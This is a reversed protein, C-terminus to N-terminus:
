LNVNRIHETPNVDGMNNSSFFYGYWRINCFNTWDPPCVAKKSYTNTFHNSILKINTTGHMM